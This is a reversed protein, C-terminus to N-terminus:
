GTDRLPVGCSGCGREEKLCFSPLRAEPYYYNVSTKEKKVECVISLCLLVLFLKNLM